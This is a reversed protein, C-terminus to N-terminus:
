INTKKYTWKVSATTGTIKVLPIGNLLAIDLSYTPMSKITTTNVISFVGNSNAINVIKVSSMKTTGVEGTITLLYWKNTNIEQRITDIYFTGSVTRSISVISDLTKAFKSLKADIASNIKADIKADIAADVQSFVNLSLFCLIIVILKKM